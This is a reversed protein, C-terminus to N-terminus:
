FFGDQVKRGNRVAVGLGEFTEDKFIRGKRVTAGLGEFNEDKFSRGNRAINFCESNYFEVGISFTVIEAVIIEVGISFCVIRETWVVTLLDTIEVAVIRSSGHNWAIGESLITLSNSEVIKLFVIVRMNSEIAVIFLIQPGAATM